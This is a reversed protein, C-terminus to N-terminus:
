VPDGMRNRQANSVDSGILLGLNDYCLGNKLQFVVFFLCDEYSKLLLDTVLRIAKESLSVGHFFEYTEGFYKSLQHFQKESLGASSKWQRENRIAQYNIM